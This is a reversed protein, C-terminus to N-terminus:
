VKLFKRITLLSGGVGIIFSSLAFSALLGTSMDKFPIMNVIGIGKSVTEQIFSYLLWQFFFATVAGIGSLFFGEIVFPWRIFSNTAGVMKMIAIEDRRIFTALKVTNSIIFVSVAGLIAMLTLTVADIVNKINVLKESIDKRSQTRAVGPIEEIENVTQAHLSIDKMKIHYSDRLPNEDELGELIGSDDGLERQFETLAQEKTVFEIDSVNEIAGIGDRMALAKVRSLSDDVYVVIESQSSVEEIVSEINFAILIFSSTILLCAAIVGVAAFSMFGHLFINGIGEVISYRLNINKSM